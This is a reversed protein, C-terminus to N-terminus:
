GTDGRVNMIGVANNNKNVALSSLVPFVCFFIGPGIGDCQPHGPAIVASHYKEDEDVFSDYGSSILTYIKGFVRTQINKLYGRGSMGPM